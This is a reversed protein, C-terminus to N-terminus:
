GWLGLHKTLKAPNLCKIHSSICRVQKTKYDGSNQLGPDEDEAAEIDGVGFNRRESSGRRKRSIRRELSSKSLNRTSYVGGSFSSSQGGSNYVRNPHVTDAIQITAM